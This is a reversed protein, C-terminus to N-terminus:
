RGKPNRGLPASRRYLAYDGKRSLLRFESRIADMTKQDEASLTRRDQGSLLSVTFM